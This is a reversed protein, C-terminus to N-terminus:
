RTCDKSDAPAIFGGFVRTDGLWTYFKYNDKKMRITKNEGARALQQINACYYMGDPIRDRVTKKMPHRSNFRDKMFDCLSGSIHLTPEEDLNTVFQTFFATADYHITCGNWVSINHRMNYLSNGPAFLLFKINHENYFKVIKSEISFPPNDFVLCGAPYQTLDTYDGGPYFPRIIPHKFAEPYYQKFFETLDNYEDEDTYIEDKTARVGLDRKEKNQMFSKFSENKINLTMHINYRCQRRTM